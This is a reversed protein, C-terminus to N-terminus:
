WAAASIPRMNRAPTGRLSPAVRPYPPTSDTFLCLRDFETRLVFEFDDAARTRNDALHVWAERAGAVADSTM